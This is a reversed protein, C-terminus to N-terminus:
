AEPSGARKRQKRQYREIAEQYLKKQDATLKFNKLRRRFEEVDAQRRIVPIPEPYAM